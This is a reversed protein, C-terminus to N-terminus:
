IWAAKAQSRSDVCQCCDSDVFVTVSASQGRSSWPRCRARNAPGLISSAKKSLPLTEVQSIIIKQPLRPTERSVAGFGSFLFYSDSCSAPETAAFDVFESPPPFVLRILMSEFKKWRQVYWSISKISKILYNCALYAYLIINLMCICTNICVSHLPNTEKEKKKKDLKRTCPTRRCSWIPWSNLPPTRQQVQWQTPTLHLSLHVTSHVYKSCCLPVVNKRNICLLELSGGTNNVAAAEALPEQLEPSLTEEAAARSM